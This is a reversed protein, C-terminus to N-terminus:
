FEIGKRAEIGKEYPHRILKMETIYDANEVFIQAPNRGTIIVELKEPKNIILNDVMDRDIVNYEYAACLEDLVLMDCQKSSVSEIAKRLNNNHMETLIKKTQENMQFIFGLDSKNRLVLINDINRLINLECTDSGKIFQVITVKKNNGAMRISQGIAATTKGKGEGCYLQILGKMNREKGFHKKKM